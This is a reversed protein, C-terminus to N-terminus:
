TNGKTEDVVRCALEECPYGFLKYKLKTDRKSLFIEILRHM